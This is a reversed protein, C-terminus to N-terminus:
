LGSWWFTKEVTFKGRLTKGEKVESSDGVVIEYEGAEACWKERFEDWYSAAYKTEIEVVARESQGPEVEVKAFGKLEKRPRNVAQKKPSAVYVQVVEQGKVGGTNAVTVGVVIKDGAQKVELESFSFTTYSLGHGFPFLVERDAFEYYRYGVYVDEGYLTRGGEARFNLFAPNDSLKKPFSLSLKGSPNADGFLVDAIANGTENGGYWAQVIAGVQDVWPMAVPTGSQMVVVTNPNAAAVATILADMHGPLDMSERDHGETEWDANLGACIVVQEADKALAVARDIEEQADLVRCGGIRLSGGGNLLGSIGALKATEASGFEVRVTYTRGATVAIRGTEEVTASGYFADGQRQVTANDVVLKEDVFLRATGCVVLGFEFEGTYDAVFSGTLDAFWAGRPNIHDNTYDVLHMETKHVTFTDVAVRSELSTYVKMEMGEEGSPTRVQFGLLPLMKHTYAGVTYAPPGPLKAAIGDYPTVAYYAALSASGGGHYTAVKANPGIVVTKRGRDLPLVGQNRCLVTGEVAIRRLLAELEPTSGGKEEQGEEIGAAACRKVLGLVKRVREDLVEGRVKDTRVCFRLLEGRFRAPGPMELDLGANVADSTSYTGWWDSM